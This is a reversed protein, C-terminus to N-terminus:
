RLKYIDGLLKIIMDRDRDNFISPSGYHKLFTNYDHGLRMCIESVDLDIGRSQVTKLWMGHTKRINHLSYEWEKLGIKKLTRKFLQSVGQKSIKLLEENKQIKNKRIHSKIKKIYDYSVCFNREEGGMEKFENKSSKSKTVKLTLYNRNFDFDNEKINLAEEIRAGTSILTEFIIKRNPNIDEIFKIWEDPFFVKKRSKRVTYIKGDSKTGIFLGEKGEVPKLILRKRKDM